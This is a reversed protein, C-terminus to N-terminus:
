RATRSLPAARTERYLPPRERQGATLSPAPLVLSVSAVPTKQVIVVSTGDSSSCAIVGLALGTVALIFTRM